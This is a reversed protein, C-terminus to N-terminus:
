RAESSRAPSAAALGTLAAWGVPRGAFEMMADLLCDWQYEASASDGLLHFFPLAGLDQRIVVCNNRAVSTQAIESNPFKEPRLDVACLKAFMAAAHRGCVAFWAHTDGRPVHYCGNAADTSWAHDLRRVRDGTGGLDGLILAETGALVAVLAGEPQAFARNPEDEFALGQEHLWALAGRGKFGTRPVLSLDALGLTRAQGEEREVSDQFAAAVAGGAVEQMTAGANILKRYVFSRRVFDAPTVAM